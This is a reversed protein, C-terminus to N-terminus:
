TAEVEGRVCVCEALLDLAAPHRAPGSVVLYGEEAVHVDWGDTDDEITVTAAMAVPSEVIVATNSTAM